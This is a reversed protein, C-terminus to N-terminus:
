RSSGPTTDKDKSVYDKGFCLSACLAKPARGAAGLVVAKQAARLRSATIKLWGLYSVLKVKVKDPRGQYRSFTFLCQRAARTFASQPLSESDNRKNGSCNQM